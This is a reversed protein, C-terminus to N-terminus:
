KWPILRAVQDHNTDAIYGDQRLGRKGDKPKHELNHRLGRKKYRIKGTGTVRFRKAAAKNTKQKPM